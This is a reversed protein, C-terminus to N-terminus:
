HVSYARLNADVRLENQLTFRECQRYARITLVGNLSEQLHTYISSRSISNLRKLERKTRLYYRELYLYLSALPLILCVYRVM